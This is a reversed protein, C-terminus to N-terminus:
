IAASIIVYCLQIEKWHTVSHFRLPCSGIRLHKRMLGAAQREINGPIQFAARRGAKVHTQIRICYLAIIIKWGSDGPVNREDSSKFVDIVRQADKKGKRVVVM